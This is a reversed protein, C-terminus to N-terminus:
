SEAKRWALWRALVGAGSIVGELQRDIRAELERREAHWQASAFRRPRWRPLREELRIREVVITEFEGLQSALRRGQSHETGLCARLAQSCAAVHHWPDVQRRRPGPVPEDDLAGLRDRLVSLDSLGRTDLGRAIFLFALLEATAGGLEEVTIRTALVM